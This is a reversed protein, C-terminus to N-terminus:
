GPMWHFRFVKHIGYLGYDIKFVCSYAERVNTLNVNIKVGSSTNGNYEWGWFKIKM